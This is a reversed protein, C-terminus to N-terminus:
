PSRRELTQLKKTSLQDLAAEAADLYFRLPGGDNPLLAEARKLAARAAQVYEDLVVLDDDSIRGATHEALVVKETATLITRAQGWRAEPTKACGYALAVAVLTLALTLAFTTRRATPYRM